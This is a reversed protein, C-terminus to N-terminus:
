ITESHIVFPVRVSNMSLFGPAFRILRTLGGEYDCEVSSVIGNLHQIHGFAKSINVCVVCYVSIQFHYTNRGTLEFMVTYGNPLGINENIM